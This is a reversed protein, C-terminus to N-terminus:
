GTRSHPLLRPFTFAGIVEQRSTSCKEYDFPPLESDPEVLKLAVEVCAFAITQPTAKLNAFTRYCDMSVKWAIKGVTSLNVGYMKEIKVM